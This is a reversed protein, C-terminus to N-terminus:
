IQSCDPIKNYEEHTGAWVIIIQKLKYIIIAIIRYNNGKLNFVVRKNGVYDASAFTNKLDNFSLWNENEVISIWRTAPNKVDVHKESLKKLILYNVIEM